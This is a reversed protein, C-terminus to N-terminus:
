LRPTGSYTINEGNPGTLTMRFVGNEVFFNADTVQHSIIWDPSGETPPAGFQEVNYYALYTDTGTNEFSLIGFNLNNTEPDKFGLVLLTGNATVAGTGTLATSFTTHIRYADAHGMLKTVANNIHPAEEVLFNQARAVRLFAIQHQMLAMIIGAVTIGLGMAMSLEILTFGKKKKAPKGYQIHIKM